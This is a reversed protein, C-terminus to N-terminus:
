FTGCDITVNSLGSANQTAMTGLGLNTRATAANTLDSLNSAKVLKEGLSTTVTGSFSSDDNIAAALENLTDLAAPASGIVEGIRAQVYATTAVKTSDDTTGQTTAASNNPLTVGATNFATTIATSGTGTIVGSLTVSENGTLYNQAKVYATSAAKTSNDGTNPTPIVPSNSFTKTGGITVNSSKTVFAGSGGIAEITSASGGAGGSGKGYYLTDDAENFALEANELSTPAGASGSSARRKIRVTNSM